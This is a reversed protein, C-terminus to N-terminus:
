CCRSVLKELKATHQRVSHAVTCHTSCQKSFVPMAHHSTCQLMGSAGCRAFCTFHLIQGVAKQRWIIPPRLFEHLRKIRATGQLRITCASSALQAKFGSRTTRRGCLSSADSRDFSKKCDKRVHVVCSPTSRHLSASRRV